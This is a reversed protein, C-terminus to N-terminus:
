IYLASRGEDTVVNFDERSESANKLGWWTKDGHYGDDNGRLHRDCNRTAAVSLSSAKAVYRQMPFRTLSLM